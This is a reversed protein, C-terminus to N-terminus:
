RRERGRRRSPSSRCGRADRRSRTRELLCACPRPGRVIFAARRMAAISAVSMTAIGAQYAIVLCGMWHGGERRECGNSQPRRVGGEPRSSGNGALAPVVAMQASSGNISTVRSKWWRPRVSSGLRPQGAIPVLNKAKFDVSPPLSPRLIEAVYSASARCFDEDVLRWCM